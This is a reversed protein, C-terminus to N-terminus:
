GHAPRVRAGRPRHQSGVSPSRVQSLLQRIEQNIPNVHRNAYALGPFTSEDSSSIRILQEGLRSIEDLSLRTDQLIATFKGDERVLPLQQLRDTIDMAEAIRDRHDEAASPERVSMFLTLSALTDNFSAHLRAMMMEVPRRESVVTNIEDHVEVLRGRILSFAIFLVGLLIGFSALLKNHLTFHSLFRQM